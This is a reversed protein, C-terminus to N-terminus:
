TAFTSPRFSFLEINVIKELTMESSATIDNVTDDTGSDGTGRLAAGFEAVDLFAIDEIVLAAGALDGAITSPRRPFYSVFFTIKKLVKM